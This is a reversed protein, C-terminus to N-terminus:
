TKQSGRGGFFTGFKKEVKENKEVTEPSFFSILFIGFGKKKIKMKACPM